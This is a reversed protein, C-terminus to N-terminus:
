LYRAFALSICLCLLNVVFTSGLLFFSTIRSRSFSKLALLTNAVLIVFSFIGIKYLEYWPGLVSGSLSSYQVPVQYDTPHVKAALVAINVAVLLASSVLVGLSLRDSFLRQKFLRTLGGGLNHRWTALSFRKMARNYWFAENTRRFVVM